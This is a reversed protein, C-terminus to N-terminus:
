VFLAGCGASPAPTGASGDWMMAASCQGNPLGWAAKDESVKSGTAQM